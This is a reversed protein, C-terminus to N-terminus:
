FCVYLREQTNEEMYKKTKEPLSNKIDDAGSIEYQQKYLEDGSVEEGYVPMSLMLIVFIFVVIRKM